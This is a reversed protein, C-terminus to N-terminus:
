PFRPSSPTRPGFRCLRKSPEETNHDPKRRRRTGHTNAKLGGCRDCPLVSPFGHDPTGFASGLHQAAVLSSMRAPFGNIKWTKDRGFRLCLNVTEDRNRLLLSVPKSYRGCAPCIDDMGGFRALHETGNVFDMREEQIQELAKIVEQAPGKCRIMGHCVVYEGGPIREPINQLAMYLRGVLLATAVERAMRSSGPQRIVLNRYEDMGDANDITCSIDELSVDLRLYDQRTSEDLENRMKLWKSATDMQSM